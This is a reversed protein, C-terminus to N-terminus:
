KYEEYNLIIDCGQIIIYDCSIYGVTWIVRLGYYNYSHRQRKSKYIRAILSKSSLIESDVELNNINKIM